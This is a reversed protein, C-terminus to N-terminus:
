ESGITAPVGFTQKGGATKSNFDYFSTLQGFVATMQAPLISDVHAPFKTKASQLIALPIFFLTGFFGLGITTTARSLKPTAVSLLSSYRHRSSCMVHGRRTSPRAIWVSRSSQRFRGASKLQFPIRRSAPLVSNSIRSTPNSATTLLRVNSKNLNQRLNGVFVRNM